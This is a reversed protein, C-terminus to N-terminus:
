SFLDHYATLCRRLQGGTDICALREGSHLKLVELHGKICAVVVHKVCATVQLGADPSSGVTATWIRGSRWKSAALGSRIQDSEHGDEPQYGSTTSLQTPRTPTNKEHMQSHMLICAIDCAHSCALLWQVSGDETSGQAATLPAPQPSESVDKCGVQERSSSHPPLPQILTLPADVCAKMTDLVIKGESLPGNRVNHLQAHQPVAAPADPSAAKSTQKVQTSDPLQSAPLNRRDIRHLSQFGRSSSVRVDTAEVHDACTYVCQHVHYIYQADDGSGELAACPDQNQLCTSRTKDDSAASQAQKEAIAQARAKPNSGGIKVDRREVDTSNNETAFCRIYSAGDNTSLLSPSAGSQQPAEAASPSLARKLARPSPNLFVTAARCGLLSAIAAVQISNVGAEFLNTTPELASAVGTGALVSMCTRMISLESVESGKSVPVEAAGLKVHPLFSQQKTNSRNVGSSGVPTRQPLLGEQLGMRSDRTSHMRSPQPSTPPHPSLWRPADATETTLAAHSLIDHWASLQSIRLRDVKGSPLRPLAAVLALCAPQVFPDPLSFLHERVSRELAEPLKRPHSGCSYCCSASHSASPPATPRNQSPNDSCSEHGDAVLVVICTDHSLPHRTAVAAAEAHDPLCVQVPYHTIM